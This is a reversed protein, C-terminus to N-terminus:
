HAPRFLENPLIIDSARVMSIEVREMHEAEGRALLGTGYTAYPNCNRIMVSTKPLGPLMPVNLWYSGPRSRLKVPCGQRVWAIIASSDTLAKIHRAKVSPM